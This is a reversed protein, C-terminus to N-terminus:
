EGAVSTASNAPEAPATAAPTAAPAVPLAEPTAAAAPLILVSTSTTVPSGSPATASVAPTAVGGDPPLAATGVDPALWGGGEPQPAMQDAVNIWGGGTAKYIDTATNLLQARTLVLDLEAPFLQQEADLVTLYSTYGGDFQLRALRAYGQLADVLRQKAAVQETLKTRSSLANEVEAFANEIVSEYNELAIQQSAETQRVLGSIGGGTFIPGTISGTFNWTKASGEFLNSLDDSSSGFFGTLSISPFYLAKAAGILANAAILNQEAEAIDPRRALLDSPLGEPVVPLNLETISKGRQVPGPNGGLLISLVNETVVIQQEVQPIFAAATEYQSRAQQVTMESVVGYKYQLEFLKVSEAYADRTRQAIILQQDLARLDLYVTTVASVVSLLVGRRAFEAAYLDARAAETERRIRGWLDIEWSATAFAQYTTAPNDTGPTIFEDPLEQRSGSGQYGIQPFLPSRATTFAGAALEVNRTAIEVSSNNALATAIHQELVPDDFNRWWESNATAATDTVAFRYSDPTVVEPREYDPGVACGVLAFGFLM